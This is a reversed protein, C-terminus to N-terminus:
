DQSFLWGMVETHSTLACGNDGGTKGEGRGHLVSLAQMRPEPQHCGNYLTKVMVDKNGKKDM